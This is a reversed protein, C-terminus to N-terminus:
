IRGGPTYALEPETDIVATEDQPPTTEKLSNCRTDDGAFSNKTTITSTRSPGGNSSNSYSPSQTTPLAPSM